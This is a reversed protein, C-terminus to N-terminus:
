RVRSGRRTTPSNKSQSGCEGSTSWSMRSRRSSSLRSPMSAILSQAGGAFCPYSHWWVSLAREDADPFNSASLRHVSAGRSRASRPMVLRKRGRSMGLRDSGFAGGEILILLGIGILVVPLLVHGWRSLASAVTPRTAFFLGVMVLFVACYTILDATNTTTFVPVYVGINGGGNAFTVGAVALATPAGKKGTM